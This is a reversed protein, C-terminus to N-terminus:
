GSSENIVTFEGSLNSKVFVNKYMPEISQTVGTINGCKDTATPAIAMVLSNRLGSQKIALRLPSWDMRASRDMDLYGGLEKELLAITDIPLFGREWKSGKYTSYVGRERALEVSAEIAFYSIAEMSEDAFDVAEQSAYSFNQPTCLM